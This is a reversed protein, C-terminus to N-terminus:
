GVLALNERRRAFLRAVPILLLRCAILALACLVLLLPPALAPRGLLRTAVLMVLLAPVSAAVFVLLGLMGALGHANSRNGISNLDVARPLVASAAAAAPAALLYTSALALPISLWLALHGGPFLLLALGVCVLVTFGAIVGNGVAKGILIDIDRMPSLLQLTLGAGDIAFQNMAFPLIALLCIAASFAALALGSQLEIFGLEADGSRWMLLAFMGLVLLPSVLMSRGRPTRMALRWQNQAVASAGPSLGPLTFGGRGIRGATRRPGTSAPSGLVGRFAAFGLAHLVAGVAALALLPPLASAPGVDLGDVIARRYLESPLLAFATSGIARAWGPLVQGAPEAHAEQPREEDDSLLGAFLGLMPALVAFALAMLEGRRRDRLLLHLFTTAFSALGLLAILFLAGAVAAIMATGFAGAAAVGVPFALVIPVALLIWPDALASAGQAIYLTARSIPLLLLRVANTRESAPLVIPGLASLAVATLLLYRVLEFALSRESPSTALAHGAYASLAALSLASPIFLAAAILPGLQEIALSLRQLTDRGGTRELSNVLVRWRMWAFARLIRLM